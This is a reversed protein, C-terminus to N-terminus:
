DLENLKQTFNLQMAQVSSMAETKNTSTEFQLATVSDNIFNIKGSLQALALKFEAAESRITELQKIYFANQALNPEAPPAPAPQTPINQSIALPPIVLPEDKQRIKALEVVEQIIKEQKEAEAALTENQTQM